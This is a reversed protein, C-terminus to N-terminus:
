NGPTSEAEPTPPPELFDDRTKQVFNNGTYEAVRVYYPSESYKAAYSNNAAEDKAGIRLTYEEGGQTKLTIVALPDDLGFSPQEEKGIPTTMRLSVAQNVLGTVVNEKLTEDDSLDKMTWKDGEKVFDFVGNQNELTMAVTATQPLTYYLTDIWASAQANADYSNIDATLYVEAQDDVRVHTAGAGASSGLYLKYNSGDLLTIELLRNFDDGAVELRKHSAETKAVLRNTKIGKIKELLPSIKDAQVPFDGAKPLIWNDGENALVVLKDQGDRITLETVDAASFDALLPGGGGQTASQPWYIFATLALQLVLVIALIQNTKNM